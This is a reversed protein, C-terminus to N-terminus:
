FLLQKVKKNLDVLFQHLEPYVSPNIKGDDGLQLHLLDCLTQGEYNILHLNTRGLDDTLYKLCAMTQDADRLRYRLDQLAEMLPTNGESNPTNLATESCEVLAKVLVANDNRVAHHLATLGTGDPANIDCGEANMLQKILITRLNLNAAIENEDYGYPRHRTDCLATVPTSEYHRGNPNANYDLCLQINQTFFASDLETVNFDVQKLVKWLESTAGNHYAKESKLQEILEDNVDDLWNKRDAYDYATYHVNNQHNLKLDERQLFQKILEIGRPSIRNVGTEYTMLYAQLPNNCYYYNTSNVDCREQNLLAQILVLDHGTRHRKGTERDYRNYTGVAYHLATNGYVDQLNLNIEPLTCAREVIKLKQKDTCDAWQKMLFLRHLPTQGLSDQQNWFLESWGRNNGKIRVTVKSWEGQDVRKNLNVDKYLLLYFESLRVQSMAETHGWFGLSDMEFELNLLEGKESLLKLRKSREDLYFLYHHANSNFNLVEYEGTQASAMGTGPGFCSLSDEPIGSYIDPIQSESLFAAIRMSYFQQRDGVYKRNLFRLSFAEREVDVVSQSAYLLQKQGNQYVYALREPAQEMKIVKCAFLSLVLCGVLLTKKKFDKM